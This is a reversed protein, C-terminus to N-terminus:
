DGVHARRVARPIWRPVAPAAPTGAPRAPTDGGLRRSPPRLAWSTMALVAFVLPPLWDGPGNGVAVQSAAAGLMNIMIGAYAWEKLRPLRPAALALAALLKAIGLITALYAPYGLQVLQSFFPDLRLLDAVGGVLSEAVVVGTTVWYTVTRRRRTSAVWASM